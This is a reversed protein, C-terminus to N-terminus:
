EMRAHLIIITANLNTSSDIGKTIENLFCKLNLYYHSWCEVAKDARRHNM